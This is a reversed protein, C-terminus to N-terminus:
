DNNVKRAYELAETETKFLQDEKVLRYFGLGEKIEYELGDEGFRISRIIKKKVTKIEKYDVDEGNDCECSVPKGSATFLLARGECRDCERLVALQENDLFYVEEDYDFKTELKM